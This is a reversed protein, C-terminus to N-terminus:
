QAEPPRREAEPTRCGADLFGPRRGFAARQVGFMDALRYWGIKAIESLAVAVEQEPANDLRAAFGALISVKKNERACIVFPFGFRDKYAENMTAFRVIEDPTLTGPDLGAAQQEGTSERTLTGALAANGVLDPHARILALQRDASAAQIAGVLARHLDEIDAFPRDGRAGAAIWPSGEFLFGLHAVFTERDWANIEAITRCRENM